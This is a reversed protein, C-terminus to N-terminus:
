EFYELPKSRLGAPKKTKEPSAVPKAQFDHFLGAECETIKDTDLSLQSRPDPGTQCNEVAELPELNKAPM